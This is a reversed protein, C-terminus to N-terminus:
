NKPVFYIRVRRNKSRGEPTENSAIPRDEGFYVKYLRVNTGLGLERFLDAVKKVRVESLKQNEGSSGISCTHGEIVLRGKKNKIISVIKRIKTQSAPKLEASKFDFNVTSKPPQTLTTSLSSQEGQSKAPQVASSQNTSFTKNKLEMENSKIVLNANTPTTRGIQNERTENGRVNSSDGGNKTVRNVPGGTRDVEQSNSLSASREGSATRNKSGPAVNDAKPEAFNSVSPSVKSAASHQSKTFEKHYAFAAIVLLLLGAAIFVPLRRNKLPPKPPEGMVNIEDRM